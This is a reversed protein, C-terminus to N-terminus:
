YTDTPDGLQAVLDGPDFQATDGDDIAKSTDLSGFFSLTGLTLASFYGFGLITGWNGGSAQPFTVTLLNQITSPAGGASSGWNTANAAWAVRAYGNGTPEVGGAGADNPLTTFLGLHSRATSLATGQFVHELVEVEFADVWGEARIDPLETLPHLLGFADEVWRRKLWAGEPTKAYATQRGPIVLRDVAGLSKIM